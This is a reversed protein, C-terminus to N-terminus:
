PQFGQNGLNTVPPAQGRTSAVIVVATAAAVVGFATWFWLQSVVSPSPPDTAPSKFDLAPSSDPAASPETIATAQALPAEAHVDAAATWLSMSLVCAAVGRRWRMPVLTAPLPRPSTPDIMTVSLYGDGITTESCVIGQGPVRTM